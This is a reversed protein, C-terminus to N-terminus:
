ASVMGLVQSGGKGSSRSLHPDVAFSLTTHSLFGLHLPFGGPNGHLWCGALSSCFGGRNRRSIVWLWAPHFHAGLQLLATKKMCTGLGKDGGQFGFLEALEPNNHSM